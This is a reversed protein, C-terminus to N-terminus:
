WEIEEIQKEKQHQEFVQKMQEKLKQDSTGIMITKTEWEKYNKYYETTMGLCNLVPLYFTTKDPLTIEKDEEPALCYFVANKLLHRFLSKAETPNKKMIEIEKKLRFLKKSYLKIIYKKNKILAITKGAENLEYKDFDNLVIIDGKEVYYKGTFLVLSLKVKNLYYKKLLALDEKEKDSPLLFPKNKNKKDILKDLNKGKIKLPLYDSVKQSFNASLDDVLTEIQYYYKTGSIIKTDIFGPSISRGIIKYPGEKQTSRYVVYKAQEATSNWYLSIKKSKDDPKLKIEGVKPIKKTLFLFIHSIINAGLQDINEPNLITEEKYYVIKKEKASFLYIKTASIIIKSPKTTGSTNKEISNATDTTKSTDSSLSSTLIEGLLLYNSGMNNTINLYHTLDQSSIKNQSYNEELKFDIKQSEELPPFNFLIRKKNFNYISELLKNATSSNESPVKFKLVTLPITKPIKETKPEKKEKKLEITEIKSTPNPQKENKQNKEPALPEKKAQLPALSSFFCLLILYFIIKKTLM